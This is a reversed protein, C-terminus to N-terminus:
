EDAVVLGFGIVILLTAILLFVREVRLLRKFSPSPTEVWVGPEAQELKLRLPKSIRTHLVIILIVLIITGALDLSLGVHKHAM